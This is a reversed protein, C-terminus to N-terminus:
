YNMTRIKNIYFDVRNRWETYPLYTESSWIHNVDRVQGNIIPLAAASARSETTFDYYDALSDLKRTENVMFVICEQNQRLCFENQTGEKLFASDANEYVIGFDTAGGIIFYELPSYQIKIIPNGSIQESIKNTGTYNYSNFVKGKITDLVEATVQFRYDISTLPEDPTSYKNIISDPSSIIRVRLIYHAESLSFLAARETENPILHAFKVNLKWILNQLDNRYIALYTPINPESDNPMTFDDRFVIQFGAGSDIVPRQHWWVEDWYQRFIVPNYDELEYLYKMTYKLTDNMTTWSDILSDTMNPTTYRMLSDIYIYGQLIEYPMSTTIPPINSIIPYREQFMATTSDYWLGLYQCGKKYVERIGMENQSFCIHSIQLLIFALLVVKRSNSRRNKETKSAEM